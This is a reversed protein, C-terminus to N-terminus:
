KQEFRYRDVIELLVTGYKELVKKGIGPVALMERGSTPLANSIGLIAKQHLVTYAPLGQKKAEENRWNRLADYLRPHLIDDGTQLKVVEVKKRRVEPKELLARARASLYSRVDFGDAVAELVAMKLEVEQRLRSLAEEVAKRTEKNDIEPNVEELMAVLRERIKERFYDVGRGIREAMRPNRECDGCEGAMRELQGQFRKGVAFM